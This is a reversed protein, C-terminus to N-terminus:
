RTGVLRSLSEGEVQGLKATCEEAALGLRESIQVRTLGKALLRLAEHLEEPTVRFGEYRVSSGPM